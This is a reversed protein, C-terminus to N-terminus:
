NEPAFRVRSLLRDVESLSGNCVDAWSDVRIPEGVPSAAALDIWHRYPGKLLEPKQHEATPYLWFRTSQLGFHRGEESRFSVQSIKNRPGTCIIASCIDDIETATAGMPPLYDREMHFRKANYYDTFELVLSNLHRKGFVIIKAWANWNSPKSSENVAVM